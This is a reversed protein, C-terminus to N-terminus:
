ATDALGTDHDLGGSERRCGWRRSSTLSEFWKGAGPPHPRPWGPGSNAEPRTPPQPQWHHHTRCPPGTLGTHDQPRTMPQPSPSPRPGPQPKPQATGPRPRRPHWDPPAHIKRDHLHLDTHCDWCMSALNPVETLGGHKYYDM